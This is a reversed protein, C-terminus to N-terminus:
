EMAPVTIGGAFWDYYDEMRRVRRAFSFDREIRDRCAAGCKERLEPDHLLRVVHGALGDIDGVPALFGGSGHGLLEPVGGVATSVSPVGLAMAELLTNPMGETLSTMLFVDFSVYVDLLDNRHGTFLVKRELGRRLVEERAKALEDGYGDGVIVFTVNPIQRAVEEAVWYFTPLDKDYTIRAVTGVLFGDRPIGFEERLVPQATDRRWVALDIGNHLVAVHHGAIGKAVLRRKTDHSVALIPKLCRRMLFIQVKQRLRFKLYGAFAAFDDRRYAAHSHCTYMVRLGPTVLRLLCGYLLTKDDHAHFVYIRYERILDRLRRLCSIDIGKSDFLDVYDIGLEKALRDIQFEKDQPQRLYTVLIYVRSRDHQAASNLVTKDPGGGGKYTGRLDMVRPVNKESEKPSTGRRDAIPLDARPRVQCPSGVAVSDPPVNKTVVANAGIISHDGITIEGIVKAGAGILVGDGIKAANGSGGRDGITVGQYITCNEGIEVTPHFIIGGFHFIRFGPGIRCAAPISIGTTIEIFRECLFRLPQSPIGKRRIWHFFRYVLIAQFGQSLIGAIFTRVSAKGAPSLRQLDARLNDFM